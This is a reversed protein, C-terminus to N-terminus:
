SCPGGRGWQQTRSGEWSSSPSSGVSKGRGLLGKLPLSALAESSCGWFHDEHPFVHRSNTGSPEGTLPTRQWAHGLRTVRNGRPQHSSGGEREAREQCHGGFRAGGRDGVGGLSHGRGLRRRRLLVELSCCCSMGEGGDGGVENDLGWHHRHHRLRGRRRQRSGLGGRRWGWGGLGDLGM